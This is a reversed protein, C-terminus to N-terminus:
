PKARRDRMTTARLYFVIRARPPFNDGSSLFRALERRGPLRLRAERITGRNDGSRRRGSSDFAVSLVFRRLRLVPLTFTGGVVIVNIGSFFQHFPYFQDFKHGNKVINGITKRVSWNRGIRM